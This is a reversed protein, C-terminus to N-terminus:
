LHRRKINLAILLPSFAKKKGKAKETTM